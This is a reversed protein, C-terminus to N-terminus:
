RENLIENIQQEWVYQKYPMWKSETLKVNGSRPVNVYPSCGIMEIFTCIDGTETIKSYGETIIILDGQKM